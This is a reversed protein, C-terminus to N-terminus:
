GPKAHMSGEDMPLRRIADSFGTNTVTEGHIRPLCCYSRSIRQIGDGLM